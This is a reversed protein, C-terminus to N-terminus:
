WQRFHHDVVAPVIQLARRLLIVDDGDIWRWRNLGRSRTKQVRLFEVLNCLPMESRSTNKLLPEGQAPRIRRRQDRYCLSNLLGKGINAHEVGHFTQSIM